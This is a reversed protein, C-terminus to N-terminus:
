LLDDTRRENPKLFQTWAPKGIRLRGTNMRVLRGWGSSPALPVQSWGRLTGRPSYSNKLAWTEVPSRYLLHLERKKRIPVDLINVLPFISVRGEKAKDMLSFHPQELSLWQSPEGM